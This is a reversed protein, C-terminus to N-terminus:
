DKDDKKRANIFTVTTAQLKEGGSKIDINEPEYYGLMKNIEKIADLKNFLKIKIYEVDYVVRELEKTEPNFEMAPKKIIKTDIEQISAKTNESLSEFDKRTIWDKHIGAINSKSIKKLDLLQGLMSIGAEKAIDKQIEEVFEKFGVNELMKYGQANAYNESYGVSILARVMNWDKIYEHAAAKQKNTLIKKKEKM